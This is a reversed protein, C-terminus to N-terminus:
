FIKTSFGNKKDSQKRTELRSKPQGSGVYSVHIISSEVCIYIFMKRLWVEYLFGWEVRSGRTWEYFTPGNLISNPGYSPTVSDSGSRCSVRRQEERLLNLPEWHVSPRRNWGWDCISVPIVNIYQFVNLSSSNWWSLYGGGESHLLRIPKQVEM